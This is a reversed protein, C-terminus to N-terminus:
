FIIRIEKFSFRESNFLIATLILASTTLLRKDSNVKQINCVNKDLFWCSISIVASDKCCRNLLNKKFDLPVSYHWLSFIRM